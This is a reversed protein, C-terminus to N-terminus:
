SRHAAAYDRPTVGTIAKFTRHFYHPSLGAGAALDELTPIEERTEILRCAAAIRRAHQQDLAAEGPKCRKCPRFGAREAHARTEHVQVNEPRALRARCSPRCYVGTSKVSYYFTGDASQDRNVISTWRPDSTTIGAREESRSITKM